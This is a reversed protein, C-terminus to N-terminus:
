ELVKVVKPKYLNMGIQKIAKEYEEVGFSDGTSLISYEGTVDVLCYGTDRFGNREYFEMRKVRQKYNDATKDLLEINLVLEKGDSMEKLQRLM